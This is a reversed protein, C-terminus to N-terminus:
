RELGPDRDNSKPRLRPPQPNTPPRVADTAPTPFAADRLDQVSPTRDPEPTRIQHWARDAEKLHVPLAAEMERRILMPNIGQDMANEVLTGLQHLGTHEAHRLITRAAPSHGGHLYLAAATMAALDPRLEAPAARFTRVMADLRGDTAYAAVLIGDRVAGDSSTALHALTAMRQPDDGQGPAALHDLSRTAVEVLFSPPSNEFVAANRAPVTGYLPEPLPEFRRTYDERTSAPVPIGALVLDASLDPLPRFQSLAASHPQQVRWDTDVIQVLVPPQLDATGTLADGLLEAREAGQTGYGVILMQQHERGSAAQALWAALYEAFDRDPVQAPNWEIAATMGPRGDTGFTLFAVHREDLRYGLQTPLTALYEPLSLAEDM